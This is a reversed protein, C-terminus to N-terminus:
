KKHGNREHKQNQNKEHKKLAQQASEKEVKRLVYWQQLIGVGTNVIWYLVLGAPFGMFLLTFIVPLFMMVKAQTPDAPAPNLRQQAFMALGMLIPLVFYPDRLSLDKIWFIFPAQRLEVSAMLMWYLAIFVPIQILIPLCGSLPNVKEKQYLEMTAKGMAQRDDGCRQKLEQLKPQLMRMKAMSRFSKASLPYFVLKIVITVAIIALGWNGVYQQIHIMLWFLLESIFWLWGYDVTLNLNPAAAKLQDSLTPGVYLSAGTSATAGSPVTMTPSAIGVAYINDEFQRSYLLNNQNAQPIWASIFYHQVMSVWGGTTLEKLNNEALNKFSLKSYRTDIASYAVGTFTSYSMLINHNESVPPVRLLQGYFRGEWPTKSSNHILYNVKILYHGPEFIYQKTIQLGNSNQYILNVTLSQGPTQIYQTQTSKFILPSDTPLGQGVLGSQAIYFSNAQTNLLNVPTKDQTSVPYKLLATQVLNGGDLNIEATMLDTKVTIIQGSAYFKKDLQESANNLNSTESFPTTGSLEQNSTPSNSESNNAQNNIQLDPALSATQATSQSVPHYKDDWRHILLALLGVICLILILKINQINWM